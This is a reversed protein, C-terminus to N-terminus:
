KGLPLLRCVGVPLGLSVASRVVVVVTLMQSALYFLRTACGSLCSPYTDVVFLLNCYRMILMICGWM